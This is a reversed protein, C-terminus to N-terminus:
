NKVILKRTLVGENDVYLTYFYIGSNLEETRIKVKSEAAPLGYEGVINGLINHIVIRAKSRENFVKYDVFAHDSVPNPYVDHLTIRKSNYINQKIPKEEIVFNLEFEILEAPNIRNYILYKGISEGSVLGGELAVHLTNSVQGPELKLILDDTKQDQCNSDLCFYNKQTSGIQASVKRVVLTMPKESTNRIRIPAKVTEGIIGKYNEQLGLMEFGQAAAASSLFIFVVFWVLKKM